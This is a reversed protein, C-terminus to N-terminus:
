FLNYNISILTGMSYLKVNAWGVERMPVKIFPEARFSFKRNLDIEYGLSFTANSLLHATGTNKDWREPQGYQSQNYAYSFRYDENLMIYSSAGATAFLRSYDFHMFNYKLTVPIDILFCQGVTEDPQNGNSWYNQPPNYENGSASYQVKSHVAGVSLALRETLSYEVSLGIKYGPDYFNSLGGVTSLDPGALVGLTLDSSKGTALSHRTNAPGFALETVIYGEAPDAPRYGSPRSQNIASAWLENNIETVSNDNDASARLDDVTLAAQDILDANAWTAISEEKEKPKKASEAPSPVNNSALVEDESNNNIKNNRTESADPSYEPVTFEFLSRPLIDTFLNKPSETQQSNTLRENLQTITIQQQYTNYALVSFLIIVAAAAAYRIWRNTRKRDAADLRKELKQWDEEHYKIDYERTKIRFFEELPDNHQHDAM